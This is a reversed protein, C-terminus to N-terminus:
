AERESRTSPEEWWGGVAGRFALGVHKREDGIQVGGEEKKEGERSSGDGDEMGPRDGRAVAAAVGGRPSRERAIEAVYVEGPVAEPERGVSWRRGDQSDGDEGALPRHGGRGAAHLAVCEGEVVREGTAAVAHVHEGGGRRRALLRRLPSPPLCAVRPEVEEGAGVSASASRPPGNSTTWESLTASNCRQARSTGLKATDHCPIEKSTRCEPM